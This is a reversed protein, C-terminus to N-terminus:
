DLLHDVVKELSLFEGILDIERQSRDDNNRDPRGVGTADSTVLAFRCGIQRAFQGDSEWRDGVMVVEAATHPSIMMQVLHAMTEHPKGTVIPSVGTATSVAALISGGGPTIGHATPYVPDENSGILQAGTTVVRQALALIDYSFQRYLGVVVADFKLMKPDRQQLQYDYGVQNLLEHAFVADIGKKSLAEMIGAGGCVLVRSGTVLRHAASMASTVVNGTAEIGIAALAALQETMTSFSNNTVFITRINSDALRAVAEVAGPLPEHGLWIVGDLDCLVIKPRESQNM